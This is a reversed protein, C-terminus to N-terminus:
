CLGLTLALTLAALHSRSVHMSNTPRESACRLTTEYLILFNTKHSILLDIDPLPM